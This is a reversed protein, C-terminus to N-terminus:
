QRHHHGGGGADVQAKHQFYSPTLLALKRFDPKVPLTDTQLEGEALV